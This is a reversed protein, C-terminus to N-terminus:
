AHPMSRGARVLLELCNDFQASDSAGETLVGLLDAMDDGLLKCSMTMERAQMRNRNGRLTNIEGNHAILRMPQALRWNPFTNTSYRQHVIAMASIMRGDALDPYYAFLQPALFMGKYVITRCSMSAVYFDAEREGLRERAQREAAKRAMFLKRELDEGAEGNGAVFVQEIVPEAARALEGLCGSDTPVVRWALVNLGCHGLAEALIQRCKERPADDTPLFVMGVGYSEEAPLDFSLREAEAAFLDHPIQILMGAGDGTSEDAGAAGRHQLNLLVERGYEIVARERRGDINVVAGIGCSDHEYRTDYLGSSAPPHYM